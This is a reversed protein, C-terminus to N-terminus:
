LTFEGVPTIQGTIANRLEILHRGRSRYVSPPVLATIVEGSEYVEGVEIPERDILVEMARLARPDKRELMIWLGGFGDPQERSVVGFEVDKEGWDVVRLDDLQGLDPQDVLCVGFEARDLIVDGCTALFERVSTGIETAIETTMIGAQVDGTFRRFAPIESLLQIEPHQWWGEVLLSEVGSDHLVELIESQQASVPDVDIRWPQAVEAILVGTGAVWLIATWSGRVRPRMIALARDTAILLIPTGVLFAGVVQRAPLHISGVGWGAIMVVSGFLLVFHLLGDNETAAAPSRGSEKRGFAHFSRSMGHAILVLICGVVIFWFTIPFLGTLSIVKDGVIDGVAIDWTSPEQSRVYARFEDLSRRYGTMGGLSIFRYMEFLVSPSAFVMFSSALRGVTLQRSRHLSFLVILLAPVSLFVFVMKTQIALGLFASALLVRSRKHMVIAWVILTAGPLEGLAQGFYDSALLLGPLIMLCRTTRSLSYSHGLTWLGGIYAFFVFSMLLRVAIISGGTLWWLASMPFLLVPGTTLNPDFTWPGFGRLVGHSAYERRGVLNQVGQLIYAEDFKLDTGVIALIVRLLVLGFLIQFLVSGLGDARVRM